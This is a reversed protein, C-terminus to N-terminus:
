DGAEDVLRDVEAERERARAVLRNFAEQVGATRTLGATVEAALRREEESPRTLEEFSQEFEIERQWARAQADLNAQVDGPIEVQENRASDTTM